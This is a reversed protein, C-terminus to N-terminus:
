INKIETANLQCDVNCGCLHSATALDSSDGVNNCYWSIGPYHGKCVNENICTKYIARVDDELLQLKDRLEKNEIILTEKEIIVNQKDTELEFIKSSLNNNEQHELYYVVGLGIAVVIFIIIIWSEKKM